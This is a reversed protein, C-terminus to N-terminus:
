YFDCYVIWDQKEQNFFFYFSGSDVINFRAKEDSSIQFVFSYDDGFSIGGQTFSPYGGVKHTSYIKEVIDDYYEIGDDFELRLIANEIEPAISDSDEWSPTDNNILIPSLPFSKINKSQKDIKQLEDLVQYCNIKFYQALNDMHLNNFVNFDMFVTVLQYGTLEKPVFPLNHLFLTCIPDFIPPINEGENGWLVKGIWSEGLEETPRFGGTQFITAQKFLAEKIQQVNM